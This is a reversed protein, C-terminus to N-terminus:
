LEVLLFSENGLGKIQLFLVVMWQIVVLFGAEFCLHAVRLQRKGVRYRVIVIGNSRKGSLIM